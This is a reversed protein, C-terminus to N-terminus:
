FTFGIGFVTKPLNQETLIYETPLNIRILSTPHPCKYQRNSIPQLVFPQCAMLIYCISLYNKHINCLVLCWLLNMRDFLFHHNIAFESHINNLIHILKAWFHIVPRDNNQKAVSGGCSIFFTYESPLDRLFHFFYPFVKKKKALLLDWYVMFLMNQAYNPAWAWLNNQTTFSHM